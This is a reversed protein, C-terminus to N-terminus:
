LAMKVLLGFAENVIKQVEVKGAIAQTLLEAEAIQKERELEVQFEEASLEGNNKAEVLMSLNEGQQNLCQGLGECLAQKVPSDALGDSVTNLIQEIPLAMM